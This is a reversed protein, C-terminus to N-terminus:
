TEESLEMYAYLFPYLKAASTRLRPIRLIHATIKLGWGSQAWSSVGTDMSYSSIHVNQSLFVVKDGGPNSGIVYLM